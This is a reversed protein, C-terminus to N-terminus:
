MSPWWHKRGCRRCNVTTSIRHVSVVYHFMLLMM